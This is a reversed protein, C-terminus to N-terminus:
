CVNPTWVRRVLQRYREPIGSDNPSSLSAQSEIELYTPSDKKSDNLCPVNELRLGMSM